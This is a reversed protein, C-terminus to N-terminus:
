HFSLSRLGFGPVSAGKRRASASALAASPAWANGGALPAGAAPPEEGSAREGGSVLSCPFPQRSQLRAALKSPLGSAWPLAAWIAPCPSGPATPTGPALPPFPPEGPRPCVSPPQRLLMKGSPELQNRAPRAPGPFARDKTDTKCRGALPSSDTSKRRM